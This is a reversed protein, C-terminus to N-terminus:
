AQSAPRTMPWLGTCLLLLSIVAIGDEGCAAGAMAFGADAMAADFLACAVGGAADAPEGFAVWLPCFQAADGGDRCGAGVLFGAAVGALRAIIDGREFGIGGGDELGDSAMPCDLVIEMPLEIDAEALVVAAQAFVVGGEVEGDEASEGEVHEFAFWAFSRDLSFAEFGQHVLSEPCFDECTLSQLNQGTMMSSM